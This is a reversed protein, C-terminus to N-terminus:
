SPRTLKKAQDRTLEYISKISYRMGRVQIADFRAYIRGTTSTVGIAQSFQLDHAPVPFTLKVLYPRFPDTWVILSDDSLVDYSYLPTLASISKVEKYGATAPSGSQVAARATAALGLTLISALLLRNM